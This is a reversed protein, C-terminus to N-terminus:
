FVNPRWGDRIERFTLCKMGEEKPKEIAKRPVEKLDIEQLRIAGSSPYKMLLSKFLEYFLFLFISSLIGLHTPSLNAIPKQISDLEKQNMYDFIYVWLFYTFIIALTLIGSSKTSSNLYNSRWCSFPHCTTFLICFVGSVSKMKYKILPQSKALVSVRGGSWFGSFCFSTGVVVIILIMWSIKLTLANSPTISLAVLNTGVCSCSFHTSNVSPTWENSVWLSEIAIHPKGLNKEIITNIYTSASEAFSFCAFDQNDSHSFDYGLQKLGFTVNIRQVGVSGDSEVEVITIKNRSQDFSVNDFGFRNKLIKGRVFRRGFQGDSQMKLSIEAGNLEFNLEDEKGFNGYYKRAYLIGAQTEYFGEFIDFWGRLRRELEDSFQVFEALLRRDFVVMETAELFGLILESVAEFGVERQQGKLIAWMVDTTFIDLLMEQLTV